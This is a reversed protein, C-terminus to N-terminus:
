KQDTIFCIPQQSVYNYQRLRLETLRELSIILNKQITKEKAM